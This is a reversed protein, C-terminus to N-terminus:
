EGSFCVIENYCRVKNEFRTVDRRENFHHSGHSQSWASLVSPSSLAKAEAAIIACDPLPYWPYASSNDYSAGPKTYHCPSGPLFM